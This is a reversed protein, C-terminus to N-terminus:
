SRGAKAPVGQKPGGYILQMGHRFAAERQEDSMNNTVSRVETAQKMLEPKPSSTEKNKRADM